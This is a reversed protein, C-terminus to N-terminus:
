RAAPRKILKSAQPLYSLAVRVSSIVLTYGFPVGFSPPFSPM